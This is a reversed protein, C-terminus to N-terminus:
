RPACQNESTTPPQVAGRPARECKPANSSPTYSPRFSTYTPCTPLPNLSFSNFLSIASSRGRCISSLGNSTGGGSVFSAGPSVETTGAFTASTTTKLTTAELVGSVINPKGDIPFHVLVPQDGSPEPAGIAYFGGLQGEATSGSLGVKAGTSPDVAEITSVTGDVLEFTRELWGERTIAPGCDVIVPEAGTIVASNIYHAVPGMGEGAIQRVVHTDPTVRETDVFRIPVDM